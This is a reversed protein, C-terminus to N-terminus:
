SGAIDTSSKEIKDFNNTLSSTKYFFYCHSRFQVNMIKVNEPRILGFVNTGLNGGYNKFRM